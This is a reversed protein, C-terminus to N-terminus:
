ISQRCAWGPSTIWGTSCARCIGATFTGYIMRRRCASWDEMRHSHAGVYQYEGSLVDNSPDGNCFRDVYIQYMVAGVAWEPVRYGPILNWLSGEQPQVELGHRTYCVCEQGTQLRFCWTLREEGAQIQAEYWVFPADEEGRTMPIEETREARGGRRLMLTCSVATQAAARLRIRVTDGAEPQWPKVYDPTFDSFLAKQEFENM